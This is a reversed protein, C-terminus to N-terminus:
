IETVKNVQCLDYSGASAALCLYSDGESTGGADSSQALMNQVANIDGVNCVKNMLRTTSFLLFFPIRMRASSSARQGLHGIIEFYDLINEDTKKGNKHCLPSEFLM